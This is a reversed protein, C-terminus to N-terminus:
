KNGSLYSLAGVHGFLRKTIPDGTGFTVYEQQDKPELHANIAELLDKELENAWPMNAAPLGPFEPGPSQLPSAQTKTGDPYDTGFGFGKAAKWEVRGDAFETEYRGNRFRRDVVKNPDKNTPVQVLTGQLAMVAGELRLPRSAETAKFNGLREEYRSAICSRDRMCSNRYALWARQQRILRDRKDKPMGRLKRRVAKDLKIDLKALSETRCISVEAVKLDGSCRFSPGNAEASQTFFLGAIATCVIGNKM